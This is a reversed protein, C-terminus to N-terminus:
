KQNLNLICENFNQGDARNKPDKCFIYREYARCEQSLPICISKDPNKANEYLCAAFDYCVDQRGIYDKKAPMMMCGTLHSIAIMGSICLILSIITGSIGIVIKEKAADPLAM